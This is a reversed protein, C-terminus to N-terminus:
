SITKKFFFPKLFGREPTTATPRPPNERQCDDAITVKQRLGVGGM